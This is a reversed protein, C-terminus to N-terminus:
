EYSLLAFQNFRLKKKFNYTGSTVSHRQSKRRSHRSAAVPARQTTPSSLPSSLPCSLPPSSILSSLLHPSPLSSLLSSFLSSLLCSSNGIAYSSRIRLHNCTVAHCAALLSLLSMVRHSSHAIYFVLNSSLVDCCALLPSLVRLMQRQRRSLLETKDKVPRRIVNPNTPENQIPIM